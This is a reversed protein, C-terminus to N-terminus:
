FRVEIGYRGCNCCLKIKEQGLVKFFYEIEYDCLSINDSTNYVKLKEDDDMDVFEFSVVEVIDGINFVANGIDLFKVCEVNFKKM